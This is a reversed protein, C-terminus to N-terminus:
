SNHALLGKKTALFYSEIFQQDTLELNAAWEDDMNILFKIWDKENLSKLIPILAEDAYSVLGKLETYSRVFYLEDLVNFEDDTM